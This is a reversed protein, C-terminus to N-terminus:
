VGYLRLTEPFHCAASPAQNPFKLNENKDLLNRRPERYHRQLHQNKPPLVKDTSIYFM